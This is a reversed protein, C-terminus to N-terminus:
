VSSSVNCYNTVSKLLIELWARAASIKRQLTHLSEERSALESRSTRHSLVLRLKSSHLIKFIKNSSFSLTCSLERSPTSAMLIYLSSTLRSLLYFPALHRFAVLWFPLNRDGLLRRKSCRRSVRLSVQSTPKWM